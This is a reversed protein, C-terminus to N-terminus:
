PGLMPLICVSYADQGGDSNLQNAGGYDVLNIFAGTVYVRATAGDVALQSISVGNTSGFKQAWVDTGDTWSLAATWADVEDIGAASLTRNPLEIENLFSGGVLVVNDAIDVGVGAGFQDNPGGLRRAWSYADTASYSAVVVESQNGDAPGPLEQVGNGYDIPITGDGIDSQCVAVVGNSPGIAVANCSDDLAGGAPRVWLNGGNDPRFKAVFADTGGGSKYADTGAGAFSLGGKFNGALVINEVTDVAAAKVNMLDSASEGPMQVAWAVSMGDASLRALFGDGFSSATLQHSSDLNLDGNFSGALYLVGSPSLTAVISSMFIADIPKVWIAHGDTGSYRGLYYGDGDGAHTLLSPGGFDASGQFTGAIVVDGTSPDVALSSVTDIGTGGWGRAWVVHGDDRALRAIFVDDLSSHNALTNSGATAGSYLYIGAVLTDGNPDVAVFQGLEDGTGGIHSIWLSAGSQSFRATAKKATTMDLTCTAALGCSSADDFWGTFVATSPTTAKLHVLTGTQYTATCTPGCAIRSDESTVSGGGDGTVAVTLQYSAIKDFVAVANMAQSVTVTCVTTTGCTSADGSWTSFLSTGDPAATLTVTTGDAIMSSCTPGCNIGSPSTVTGGGAGQKTVQVTFAAVCVSGLGDGAEASWRVGGTCTADPYQCWSNGTSAKKCQGGSEFDCQTSASCEPASSSGCGALVLLCSAIGCRLWVM